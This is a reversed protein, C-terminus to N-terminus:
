ETAKRLADMNDTLKQAAEKGMEGRLNNRWMLRCERVGGDSDDHILGADFLASRARGAALEDLSQTLDVLADRLVHRKQGHLGNLVKCYDCNHKAYEAGPNRPQHRACLQLYDKRKLRLAEEARSREDKVLKEIESAHSFVYRICEVINM